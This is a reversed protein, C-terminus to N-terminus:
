EVRYFYTNGDGDAGIDTFTADGTIALVQAQGPQRPSTSRFITYTAQGTAPWSLVVNPSARTVTLNIPAIVPTYTFSAPLVAPPAGSNSVILDVVLSSTGIPFAPITANIQGPSVVLPNLLDLGGVTCTAGYQFNSGLITVATGGSSPATAPSISSVSPALAQGLSVDGLDTDGALVVGNIRLPTLGATAPPVFEIDYTGPPVYVGFMGDLASNDRSVIQRLGTSSDFFNLDVGAVPQFFTDVIRGAALVADGLAFNLGSMNATISVRSIRGTALPSVAPPVADVDYLRPPVVVSYNGNLDTNDPLTEAKERTYFDFFDLDANVVPLGTAQETVTGTVVLGQEIAVDGLSLDGSVAIGKLRKAAYTTTSPPHFRVDYTGPVVVVSFRGTADSNDHPTYIKTTTGAIFFDLDIGSLPSRSATVTRGSVVVGDPLLVTPLTTIIGIVVGVNKVGALRVGTPPAYEISYTDPPVVASYAGTVDTNDQPTFVKFGSGGIFDTDVDAIPAGRTDTVNGTVLVGPDLFVPPLTLDATMQIAPSEQAVLLTCKPPRFDFLYTGPPVVITYAGTADSRDHSVFVKERTVPDLADVNVNIVPRGGGATTNVAGSVLLGTGLAVTPLSTNGPLATAPRVLGLYRTGLPPGYKLDYTGPAVVVSYNGSLDTKDRVTFVRDSSGPPSFHIYVDSLGTGGTDTVRGSVTIGYPLAIPSLIRSATLDLNLIRYATYLTGAPPSFEVDYVGGNITAQFTGTSSTVNGTTGAQVGTCSDSFSVVVGGIGLGNIDTVTGSLTTFAATAITRTVFILLATVIILRTTKSIM